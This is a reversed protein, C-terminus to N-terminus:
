QGAGQAIQAITECKAIAARRRHRFALDADSVDRGAVMNEEILTLRRINERAQDRLQSVVFVGPWSRNKKLWFRLEPAWGEAMAERGIPNAFVARLLPSGTDEPPDIEGAKDCIKAGTWFRDKNPGAPHAAIEEKLADLKIDSMYALKGCVEEVMVDFQAKTVTSPRGLGLRLLPEILIHRVRKEGAAQEVSDM